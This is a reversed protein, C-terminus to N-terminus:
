QQVLFFLVLAIEQEEFSDPRISGHPYVPLFCSFVLAPSGREGQINGINYMRPFGIDYGYFGPMGGKNGVQGPYTASTGTFPAKGFAGLGHPYETGYRKDNGPIDTYLRETYMDPVTFLYGFCFGPEPYRCFYVIVTFFVGPYLQFMRQ